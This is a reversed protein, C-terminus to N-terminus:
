PQPLRPRRQLRCAPGDRILARRPLPVSRRQQVVLRRRQPVAARSFPTLRASFDDRLRRADVAGVATGTRDRRDEANLEGPPPDCLLAAENCELTVTLAPGM